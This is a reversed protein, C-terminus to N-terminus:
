GGSIAIEGVAHKMGEVPQADVIKAQVGPLPQGVSGMVNLGPRTCTAGGSTETLGYAQLVNFGLKELDRGIRPDFASGGTILYRMGAGLLKHVRAFFLKGLNLGLVRGAASLNMMLRFATRAAWSRKRVEQMVREHILYFFQPVCCFLTIGRESLARMLETTNMEELYVIRAGAAFPLLLNAMQALAHFLPLVALIADRESVNLFSFVAAAEALLNAHTLMVGKPDSTTGSTYMVVALDGDSVPVPAFEGPGASFMALLNSYRGEGSGDIMVIRVLLQDVAKEVLPLHKDDTFILTAGCDRLLKNVQMANFATDLPVAAGGASMVGLYAAVWLPGNAAMIACRAGASM